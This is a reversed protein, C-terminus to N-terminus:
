YQVTKIEYYYKDQSFKKAYNNAEERSSFDGTQLYYNEDKWSLYIELCKFYTNIALYLKDLDSFCGTV